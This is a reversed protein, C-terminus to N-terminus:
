EEPMGATRLGAFFTTKVLARIEPVRWHEAAQL